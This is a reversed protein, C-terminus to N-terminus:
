QYGPREPAGTASSGPGAASTGATTGMNPFSLGQWGDALQPRAWQGLNANIALETWRTM